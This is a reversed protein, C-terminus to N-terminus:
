RDNIATQNVAVGEMCPILQFEVTTPLKTSAGMAEIGLLQRRSQQSFTHLRSRSETIGLSKGGNSFLYYPFPDWRQPHPVQPIYPLTFFNVSCFAFSVEMTLMTMAVSPETDRLLM